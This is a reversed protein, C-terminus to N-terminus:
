FDDFGSVYDNLYTQKFLKLTPFFFFLLLLASPFLLGAAWFGEKKGGRAGRREEGRPGRGLGLEKGARAGGERGKGKRVCLWGPGRAGREKKEGVVPAAMDADGEGKGKGGRNGGGGTPCSPWQGHGREAAGQVGEEASALRAPWHGLRGKRRSAQGRDSRSPDCCGMLLPLETSRVVRVGLVAGGKKAAAREREEEAAVAERLEGRHGLAAAGGSSGLVAGGGVWRAGGRNSV